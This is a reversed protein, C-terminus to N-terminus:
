GGVIKATVEVEIRKGQRTGVFSYDMDPINASVATSFRQRLMALSEEHHLLFSVKKVDQWSAGGDTLSDTIRQIIVPFQEDFTAHTMDTVGSLFLIDGLTMSRLPFAPPDYEKMIKPAGDAPPRMALLDISIRAKAGLRGTWIHSSSVSRANGTGEWSLSVFEQRLWPFIKVRM